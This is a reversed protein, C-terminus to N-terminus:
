LTYSKFVLSFTFAYALPIIIERIVPKKYDEM